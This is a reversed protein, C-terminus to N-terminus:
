SRVGTSFQHLHYSQITSSVDYLHEILLSVTLDYVQDYYAVWCDEPVAHKQLESYHVMGSQAETNSAPTSTFDIVVEPKSTQSADDPKPHDETEIPEEPDQQQESEPEALEEVDNEGDADDPQAGGDNQGVLEEELMGIFYDWIEELEYYDHFASFNETDDRGCNATILEAGGPPLPLCLLPLSSRALYAIPHTKVVAISSGLM